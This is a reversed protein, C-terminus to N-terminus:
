CLYVLGVMVKVVHVTRTKDGFLVSVSIWAEDDQDFLQFFAAPSKADDTSISSCITFNGPLTTANHSQGEEGVLIAFDEILNHDQVTPKRGLGTDIARFANSGSSLLALLFLKFATVKDMANICIRARLSHM